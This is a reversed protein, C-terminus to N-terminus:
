PIRRAARIDRTRAVNALRIKEQRDEERTGSDLSLGAAALRRDNWEKQTPLDLSPPMAYWDGTTPDTTHLWRHLALYLSRDCAKLDAQTFGRGLRGLGDEGYVREIFEPPTEKKKKDRNLWLLHDGPKARLLEPPLIDLGKKPAAASQFAALIDEAAEVMDARIALEPREGIIRKITEFCAVLTYEDNGLVNPMDKKFFLQPINHGTPIDSFDDGQLFKAVAASSGTEEHNDDSM